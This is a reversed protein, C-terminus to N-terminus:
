SIPKEKISVLTALSLALYILHILNVDFFSYLDSGLSPYIMITAALAAIGVVLSILAAGISLVKSLFPKRYQVVVSTAGLIGIPALYYVEFQPTFALMLNLVALVTALITSLKPRLAEKGRDHVENKQKDNTGM